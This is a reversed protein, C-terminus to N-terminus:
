FKLRPYYPKEQELGDELLEKLEDDSYEKNCDLCLFLRDLRFQLTREDTKKHCLDCKM